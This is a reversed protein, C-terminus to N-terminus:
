HAYKGGIGTIVASFCHLNEWPFLTESSMSSIGAISKNAPYNSFGLVFGPINFKNILKSQDTVKDMLGAAKAELTPLEIKLSKGFIFPDKKMSYGTALVKCSPDGQVVAYGPGTTLVPIRGEIRYFDFCADAEEVFKLPDKKFFHLFSHGGKNKIKINMNNYIKELKSDNKNFQNKWDRASSKSGSNSKSKEQLNKSEKKMQELADQREKVVSQVDKLAAKMESFSNADLDKKLQDLKDKAVSAINALMKEYKLSAELANNIDSIKYNTQTSASTLQELTDVHTFTSSSAFVGQSNYAPWAYYSLRENKFVYYQTNPKMSVNLKLESGDAMSIDLKSYGLIPVALNRQFADNAVNKASENASSIISREQDLLDQVVDMYEEEIATPFGIAALGKNYDALMNMNMAFDGAAALAAADVGNQLSMKFDVVEGINIVMGWFFLLIMLMLALFLVIQGKENKIVNHKFMGSFLLNRM